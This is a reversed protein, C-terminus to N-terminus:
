LTMRYNDKPSFNAVKDTYFYNRGDLSTINETVAEWVNEDPFYSLKFQNTREDPREPNIRVFRAMQRALLFPINPIKGWINYANLIDKNSRLTIKISNIKITRM